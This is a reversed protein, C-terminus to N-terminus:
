MNTYDIVCLNSYSASDCYDLTDGRLKGFETPCKSVCVRTKMRESDASNLNPYYLYPYQNNNNYIYINSYEM